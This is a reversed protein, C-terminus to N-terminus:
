LRRYKGGAGHRHPTKGRGKEDPPTGHVLPDAPITFGANGYSGTFVAHGIHELVERLQDQPLVGHVVLDDPLVDM